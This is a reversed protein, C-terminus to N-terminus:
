LNKNIIIHLNRKKNKSLLQEKSKEALSKVGKKNSNDKDINEEKIINEENM